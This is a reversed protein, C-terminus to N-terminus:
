YMTPMKISAPHPLAVQGRVACLLMQTLVALIGPDPSLCDLDSDPTLNTLAMLSEARMVDVDQGQRTGRACGATPPSRPWAGIQSAAM